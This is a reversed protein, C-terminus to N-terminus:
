LLPWYRHIWREQPRRWWIQSPSPQSHQIAHFFATAMPDALSFALM